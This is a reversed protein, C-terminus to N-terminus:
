RHSASNMAAWRRLFQTPSGATSKRGAGRIGAVTNTRPVQDRRPLGSGPESIGSAGALVVRLHQEASPSLRPTSSPVACFVNDRRDPQGGADVAIHPDEHSTEKHISVSFANCRLCGLAPSRPLEILHKVCRDACPRILVPTSEPGRSFRDDPLDRGSSGRRGLLFRSQM